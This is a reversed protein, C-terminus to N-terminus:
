PWLSSIHSSRTSVYKSNSKWSNNDKAESVTLFYGNYLKIVAQRSKYLLKVNKLTMKQEESKYKGRSTENLKLYIRSNKWEKLGWIVMNCKELFNCVM